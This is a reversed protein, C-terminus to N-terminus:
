AAGDGERSRPTVDPNTSTGQASQPLADARYVVMDELTKERRTMQELRGTLELQRNKLSELELNLRTLEVASEHLLHVYYTNLQSQRHLALILPNPNLLLRLVPNLRRRATALLRGVFSDRTSAYLADGDIKINWRPSRQRLEALLGTDFDAGDLGRELRAEAIRALEEDSYVGQRKEEIRQRILRMVDEVDVDDSRIEFSM